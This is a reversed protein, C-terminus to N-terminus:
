EEEEETEEDEKTLESVWRWVDRWAQVVYSSSLMGCPLGVM